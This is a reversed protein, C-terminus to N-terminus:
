SENSCMISMKRFLMGDEEYLIEKSNGEKLGKFADRYDKDKLGEIKVEKLFELDWKLSKKEKLKSIAIPLKQVNNEALDHIINGEFNKEHLVTLAPQNEGREKPPRLESHRSLADPKSNQSGPRYCIEFDM